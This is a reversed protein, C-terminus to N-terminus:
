RPSWPRGLIAREALGRLGEAGRLHPADPQPDGV